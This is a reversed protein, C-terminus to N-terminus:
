KEFVFVNNLGFQFKEHKVLKLCTSFSDILYSPKLGHHEELAQGDIFRFFMLVDLIHDVFPHPVTVILRGNPALLRKIVEVSLFIDEESFHEFVALAFIADYVNVKDDKNFTQLFYGKSLKIGDIFTDRELRPDVGEKIIVNRKLRKLLYGEDCGIDFVAEMLRPANKLAVKTRWYRLIKDISKM